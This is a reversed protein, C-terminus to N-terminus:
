TEWKNEDDMIPKDLKEEEADNVDDFKFCFFISGCIGM